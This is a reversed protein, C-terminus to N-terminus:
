GHELGELKTPDLREIRLAFHAAYNDTSRDLTRLWTVIREREARAGRQEAEANEARLRIIEAILVQAADRTQAQFLHGTPYAKMPNECILMQFHNFAATVADEGISHSYQRCTPCCGFQESLM